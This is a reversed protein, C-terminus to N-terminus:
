RAPERLEQLAPRERQASEPIVRELLLMLLNLLGLLWPLWDFVYFLVTFLPPPRAHQRSPVLVPVVGPVARAVRDAVHGDGAGDVGSRPDVGWLTFLGTAAILAVIVGLGRAFLLAWLTGLPMAATM